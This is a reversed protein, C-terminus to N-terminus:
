GLYIYPVIRSSLTPNPYLILEKLMCCSYENNSDISKPLGPDEIKRKNSCSHKQERIM